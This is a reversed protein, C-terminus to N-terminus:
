PHRATRAVFLLQLLNVLTVFLVSLWYECFLARGASEFTTGPVALSFVCQTVTSLLFLANISLFRDVRNLDLVVAVSLVLALWVETSVHFWEVHGATRGVRWQVVMFLVGLGVINPYTQSWGSSPAMYLYLGTVAFLAFGFLSVTPSVFHILMALTSCSFAFWIWRCSVGTIHERTERTLLLM